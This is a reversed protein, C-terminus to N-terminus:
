QAIQLEHQQSDRLTKFIKQNASDVQTKVM